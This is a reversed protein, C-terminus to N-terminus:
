VGVQKVSLGARKMADVIGIANEQIGPITPYVVAATKVKLVDRAFTGYPGLM